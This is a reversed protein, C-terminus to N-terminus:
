SEDRRGRVAALTVLGAAMLGMGALAYREADGGTFPLTAPVTTAEVQIGLVEAGPVTDYPVTTPVTQPTTQPTTQSTTSPPTNTFTCRVQEGAGVPVIVGVYDEVTAPELVLAEDDVHCGVQKTWGSPIEEGVFYEDPGLLFTENEGHALDFTMPRYVREVLDVLPEHTVVFDFERTPDQPALKEVLLSTYTNTFMCTITEGEDLDLEAFAVHDDDVWDVNAEDTCTLDAIRWGADWQSESLAETLTYEGPDLDWSDSGGSVLTATEIPDFEPPGEFWSEFLGFDFEESPEPENTVKRVVIRGHEEPVDPEGCVIVFSIAHIRGESDEPVTFTGEAGPGWTFVETSAKVEGFAVGGDAEWSFGVWEGPEGDKEIWEFTVVVGNSLEVETTGPIDKPEELKVCGEPPAYDGAVAPGPVLAAGLVFVLLLLLSVGAVRRVTLARM